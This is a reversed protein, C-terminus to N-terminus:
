SNVRFHLFLKKHLITSVVLNILLIRLFMENELKSKKCRWDTDIDIRYNIYKTHSFFSERLFGANGSKNNQIPNIPALTLQM